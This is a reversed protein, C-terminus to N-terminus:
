KETSEEKVTESAPTGFEFAAINKFKYEIFEYGNADKVAETEEFEVFYDLLKDLQYAHLVSNEGYTYVNYDYDSEPDNKYDDFEADTVKLDFAEAVRYLQVLPKVYEGAAKRVAAKAEDLTKVSEYADTVQKVLFAEFNKYQKYNSVKDSYDGTYFDNEYNEMMSEYTMEVAKEPLTEGLKVNETIFYYVEKALNMRIEENYAKQLSTYTEERFRRELLSDFTESDKTIALLTKIYDNKETQKSDYNTNAKTQAETAKTLNEEAKALLGELESIKEADPTAEGKATDLKTKAEDRTQTSDSVDKSANEKATTADAIDKYLATLKTVFAELSDGSATKIDKVLEAREAIKDKDEEEDLNAYDSGLVLAYLNDVTIADAYYLDILNTANYDPTDIFYSPFVHYTLEKGKVDRSQNETDTFVKSDTYPTASFSFSETNTNAVWNVMIDSYSVDGLTADTIIVKDLTKSVDKGAIYSEISAAKENEAPATGVVFMKNVVKGTKETEVGKDDTTKYSYTYSVYAFKGTEAKGTTLPKYIKDKFDLSSFGAALGEKVKDDDYDSLGLIINANASKMNAVELVATTGDFDATVYYFYYVKDYAGPVGETKQDETDAVSSMVNQYIYDIVKNKRTEADTTFDGNEIVVKELAKLFATKEEDGFTAYNSMDEDLLSYGCSVLSLALMVVVLIMGIIRRKM